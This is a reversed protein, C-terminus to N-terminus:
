LVPPLVSAYDLRWAGLPATANLGVLAVTGASPVPSDVLPAPPQPARQLDAPPASAGVVDAFNPNLWVQVRGAKCLVRLINWGGVVLRQTVNVQALPTAYQQRASIALTATGNVVADVTVQVGNADVVLQAPLAEPWM